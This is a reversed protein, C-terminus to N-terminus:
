KKTGISKQTRFHTELVKLVMPAAIKGGGGDKGEHEGFAVVVIQPKDAPAYAGFWIHSYGPPAEATGSKGAAPPITPVNLVKGTGANVVARLGQRLVRITDPKINLSERWKKSKEDDLLLHPKVRYGGNAPVAFMMAVQLPTSQLFGQGISMNVTDGVSWPLKLRKQKWRDDAVLGAAEEAVLEIGTLSGFGYKRTWKILTPGGVGRGIQYFFTDSSWQLGGVFGLPGFGAHNWDRFVTGGINLAAYTQLITQPSFKGSEIGATTTVIKFTSAPPFGRLARNVFPHDKRNLKRWTDTTVRASFVNPDFTPHSVMALIAGNNPDMAVIAGQRDGLAAEAAKQLDLDITLRIDKGPKSLKPGLTRVAKGSGDVEIQLGGWEGRLQKEFAREVGMQGIVDGLRYGKPRLKPLEADTIEGTYGLLHAAVEGHPYNRVAEIDVEIGYKDTGLEALATIQAPNLDRAIPVLTKYNFGARDLRNQIEAEPIKLIQSLEKRTKPWDKRGAVTPWLFVSRSLRSSALLRGKRDFINGRVPLKPILRIRNNQAMQRHREGQSLQLYALRSGIGGLMVLTILLMIILSQYSKGVTRTVKQSRVSSRPVLSM